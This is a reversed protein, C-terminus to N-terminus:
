RKVVFRSSGLLKGYREDIRRGDASGFVVLKRALEDMKGADFLDLSASGDPDPYFRLAALDVNSRRYTARLDDWDTDVRPAAALWQPLSAPM